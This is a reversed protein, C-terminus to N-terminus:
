KFKKKAFSSFAHQMILLNRENEEIQKKQKALEKRLNAIEKEEKTLEKRDTFNGFTEYQTVWEKVTNKGLKYTTTLDKVSKGNQRLFVIERKFDDSYIKSM